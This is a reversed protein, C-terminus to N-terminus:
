LNYFELFEKLYDEDLNLARLEENIYVKEDLSLESNDRNNIWGWGWKYKNKIPSYHGTRVGYYIMNAYFSGAKKRVCQKLKFDAKNRQKLTGGFWYRLDHDFCCSKWLNPNGPPGEVFLTCYDTEFKELESLNNSAMANVYIFFVTFIALLKYIM